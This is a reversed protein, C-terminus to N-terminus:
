HHFRTTTLLIIM